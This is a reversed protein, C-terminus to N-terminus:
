LTESTTKPALTHWHRLFKMRITALAPRIASRIPHPDIARVGRLIKRKLHIPVHTSMIIPVWMDSAVDYLSNLVNRPPTVRDLVWRFMALYEVVDTSMHASQNRVSADHFRFVNLPEAVYAVKGTLAMAAWLKWDGCLRLTEDAGGVQEFTAKRFVVSSANPVSNTRIFYNRCEEHGDACYDATWRHPDLDALYNDAFGDLDGGASVRWSKCYAYAIKPDADLVAVLRELLHEDAYDDSEAIWVYECRALRVGKNWQKFTSGSNANNVEIRVRPDTAYSSLISRSDDTSCDDLLIVEFDQFKQQLVSDIRKRLFRAHNYNPIVVSVKPM